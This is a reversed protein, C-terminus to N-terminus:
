YEDEEDIETDIDTSNVRLIESLDDEEMLKDFQELIEKFSPRYDAKDEWCQQMMNCFAIHHNQPIDPRIGIECIKSILTHTPINPYPFQRALFEYMVIGYSYVDAKPTVPKGRLMEPATWAITGRVTNSHLGETSTISLGFDSVKM